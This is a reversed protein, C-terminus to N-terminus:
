ASRAPLTVRVQFGAGPRSELDLAGGMAALRGQMGQLGQGSGIGSAGRGDDRATLEVLGDRSRIAIWLNEADAHKVANTVIEQCCRLLAHAREPDPLALGGAEVHIRPRPIETALAALARSLDVGQDQLTDVASKVDDLLRRVLSRATDLPPSPAERQAVAELNLSLGALHHGMADHLERAIRVREGLRASEALLERTSVLEANTRALAARANAERRLVEVILFTLLQFGLYPLTFLLAERLSRRHQIGLFMALSQVGIWALGLRRPAILGLQMAVLVLLTGELGRYQGFVMVIVCVTQEALAAWVSKGPAGLRATTAAYLGAFLALSIGWPIVGALRGRGEIAASIAIMLVTLLGALRLPRLTEPALTM